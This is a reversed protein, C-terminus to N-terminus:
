KGINWPMLGDLDAQRASPLVTLVHKLYAMPDIGNIKASRVLQLGIGGPTRRGGVWPLSLEEEWPAIADV